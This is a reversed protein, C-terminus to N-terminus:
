RQTNLIKKIKLFQLYKNTKKKGFKKKRQFKIKILIIKAIELLINLNAVFLVYIKKKAVIVNM